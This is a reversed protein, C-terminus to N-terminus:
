QVIIKFISLNGSHKEKIKLLYIGKQCSSLDADSYGTSVKKLITRGTMDFVEIEAFGTNEITVLGNTPNPFVKVKNETEKDIGTIVTYVTDTVFIIGWNKDTSPIFDDGGNVTTGFLRGNILVLCGAGPKKGNLAGDFDLIKEYQSGDKKIKFLTGFGTTGGANTAGYLSNQYYLLAGYPTKGDNGSGFSHLKSYLSGNVSMKYIVGFNNDGGSSTLGYVTDDVFILEGYPNWGGLSDFERIKAFNNGSTDLKFLVSKNNSGGKLTVGFLLSDKVTVACYPYAGNPNLDFSKLVRYGSGNTNIRFITGKGSPAGYTTTGFLVDGTISLSGWPTAGDTNGTFTHLVSYNGNTDVKFVVGKYPNSTFLATGYLFAGKKVLHCYPYYGESLNQGFSYITTMNSGDPMIKFVVGKNYTGGSYATGYLWKGDFVMQTASPNAGHVSDFNFIKQFQGFTCFNLSLLFVVVIM